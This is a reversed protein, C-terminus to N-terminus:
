EMSSRLVGMTVLFDFLYNSLLTNPALPKSPLVEGVYEGLVEGRPFTTRSIVGIGRAGQCRLELNPEFWEM